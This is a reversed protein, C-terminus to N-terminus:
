AAADFSLGAPALAFLPETPSQPSNVCHVQIRLQPPAHSPAPSLLSTKDASRFRLLAGAHWQPRSASSNLALALGVPRQTSVGMRLALFPMHRPGLPIPQVARCLRAVGIQCVTHLRQLAYTKFTAQETSTSGFRRSLM